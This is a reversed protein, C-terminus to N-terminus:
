HMGHRGGRSMGSQGCFGPGFGGLDDPTGFGGSYNNQMGIRGVSRYEGLNDTGEGMGSGGGAKSMTVVADEHTVFEGDAEGTARGDAGIDTHVRLQNLVLFFNAIDNETACFLLGRVHVFHGGHFGYGHGGMGRGDRMRDDFVDNGYDYNNYSGYDDFGGYGGDYGNVRALGAGYYGGRGGEQHIMFDKIESWSSRFIEIYRHGIREKYKELANEAIGKSAFQVSAEGTSRGQYDMMLTMGNPVVELGQFFQVECLRVTGDSADNPGNHKMVFDM